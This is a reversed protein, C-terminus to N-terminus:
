QYYLHVVRVDVRIAANAKVDELLLPTRCQGYGLDEEGDAREEGVRVRVVGQDWLNGVHVLVLLLAVLFSCPGPSLLVSHSSERLLAAMPFIIM